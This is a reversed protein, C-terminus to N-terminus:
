MPSWRLEDKEAARLLVRKKINLNNKFDEISQEDVRYIGKNGKVKEYADKL